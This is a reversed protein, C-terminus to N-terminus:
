TGYIMLSTYTLIVKHGQNNKTNKGLKAVMLFQYILSTYKISVINVNKWTIEIYNM